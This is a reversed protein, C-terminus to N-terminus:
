VKTWSELYQLSCASKMLEVAPIARDECITTTELHERECADSLKTLLTAFETRMDIARLMDESRLINHISLADNTGVDHHSEVLTRRALAVILIGLLAQHHSLTPEVTAELSEVFGFRKITMSLAQERNNLSTCEFVKTLFSSLENCVLTSITIGNASKGHAFRGLYHVLHYLHYVLYQWFVLRAVEHTHASWLIDEFAYLTTDVHEVAHHRSTITAVSHEESVFTGHVQSVLLPLHVERRDVRVTAIYVADVGLSVEVMQELRLLQQSHLNGADVVQREIKTENSVSTLM